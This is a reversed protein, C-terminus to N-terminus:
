VLESLVITSRKQGIFQWWLLGGIAGLGAMLAVDWIVFCATGGVLSLWYSTEFNGAIPLGLTQILQSAGQPGVAMGNV